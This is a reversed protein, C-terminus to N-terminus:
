RGYGSENFFREVEAREWRQRTTIANSLALLGGAVIFFVGFLLRGTVARHAGFVLFQGAVFLWLKWDIRHPPRHRFMRWGALVVAALSVLSSLNVLATITRM